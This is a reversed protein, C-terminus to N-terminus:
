ALYLLSSPVYAPYANERRTVDLEVDRLSAAVVLTASKCAAMSARTACFSDSPVKVRATCAAPMACDRPNEEVSARTAAEDERGVVTFVTSVAEEVLLLLEFAEV